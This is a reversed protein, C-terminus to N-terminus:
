NLKFTIKTGDPYTQEKSKTLSKIKIVATPNFDQVLLYGKENYFMVTNYNKYKHLSIDKDFNYYVYKVRTDTNSDFLNPFDMESDQEETECVNSDEEYWRKDYQSPLQSVNVGNYHNVGNYYIYLTIKENREKDKQQNYSVKIISNLINSLASVELQAPWDRANIIQNNKYASLMYKIHDKINKNKYYSSYESNTYDQSRLALTYDETEFPGIDYTNIDFTGNIIINKLLENYTIIALKRCTLITNTNDENKLNYSLDTINLKEDDKEIKANINNLIITKCKDSLQSISYLISRFLCLGDARINRFFNQKPVDSGDDVPIKGISEQISLNLLSSVPTGPIFKRNIKKPTQSIIIRPPTLNLTENSKILFNTIHREIDNYLNVFNKVEPDGKSRGFSLSLIYYYLKEISKYLQNYKIKQKDEFFIDPHNLGYRSDRISLLTAAASTVKREKKVIYKNKDYIEQSTLLKKYKDYINTNKDISELNEIAINIESINCVINVFNMCNEQLIKLQTFLKQIDYDTFEQSNQEYLMTKDSYPNYYVSFTKSGMVGSYVPAVFPVGMILCFSSSMRDNSLFLIKKEFTSANYEQCFKIQSYDGARKIQFINKLVVQSDYKDDSRDSSKLKKNKARKGKNEEPAINTTFHKYLEFLDTVGPCSGCILKKDAKNYAYKDLLIDWGINFGSINFKEAIIKITQIPYNTNNIFFVYNNSNDKDYRLICEDNLLTFTLPKKEKKGIMDIVQTKGLIKMNEGGTSENADFLQPPIAVFEIYNKSNSIINNIINKESNKVAETIDSDDEENEYKDINKDYFNQINEPHTLDTKIPDKEDDIRELLGTSLIEEQIYDNNKSLYTIIKNLSTKLKKIDIYYHTNGRGKYNNQFVNFFRSINNRLDSNTNDTKSLNDKLNEFNFSIIYNRIIHIAYKWEEKIIKKSRSKSEEKLINLLRNYLDIIQMRFSYTDIYKNAEILLEESKIKDRNLYFLTTRYADFSKDFADITFLSSMNDKNTQEAISMIDGFLVNKVIDLNDNLKMYLLWLLLENEFDGAKLKKLNNFLSENEDIQFITKIMVSKQETTLTTREGIFDHVSDLMLLMNELIIEETSNKYKKFVHDYLSDFLKFNNRLKSWNLIIYNNIGKASIKNIGNLPNRNVGISKNFKEKQQEILTANKNQENEEKLLERKESILNNLETKVESSITIQRIYDERRSRTKGETKKNIDAEINDLVKLNIAKKINEKIEDIDEKIKEDKDEENIERKRKKINKDDLQVKEEDDEVEKDKNKKSSKPPM